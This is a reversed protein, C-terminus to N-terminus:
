LFLCNVNSSKEKYKSKHSYENFKIYFQYFIDNFNILFIIKFIRKLTKEPCLTLRSFQILIEEIKSFFYLPNILENKNQYKLALSELFKFLSNPLLPTTKLNM